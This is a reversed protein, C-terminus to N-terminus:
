ARQFDRLPTLTISLNAGSRCKPLSLANLKGFHRFPIHL